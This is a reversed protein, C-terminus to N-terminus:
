PFSRKMDSNKEIHKPLSEPNAGDVYAVFWVAYSGFSIVGRSRIRARISSIRRQECRVWGRRRRCRQSASEFVKRHRSNNKTAIIGSASWSWAYNMVAWIKADSKSLGFIWTSALSTSRGGFVPAYKYWHLVTETIFSCVMIDQFHREPGGGQWPQPFRVAKKSSRALTLPLSRRFLNKGFAYLAAM